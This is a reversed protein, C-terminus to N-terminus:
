LSEITLGILTLAIKIFVCAFRRDKNELMRGLGVTYKYQYHIHVHTCHIYMYQYNVNTHVHVSLIYTCTYHVHVSLIYTCTYPVHVSLIYTCTCTSIIYVHIYVYLSCHYVFYKHYVRHIHNYMYRTIKSQSLKGCPLKWNRWMWGRPKNPM